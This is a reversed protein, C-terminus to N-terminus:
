DEHSLDTPVDLVVGFDALVREALQRPDANGYSVVESDIRMPYVFLGPRHQPFHLAVAGLGPLKAPRVNLRLSGGDIGRLQENRREAAEDGGVIQQQTLSVTQTQSYRFGDPWNTALVTHGGITPLPPGFALM